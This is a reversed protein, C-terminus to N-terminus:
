HLSVAHTTNGSPADSIAFHLQAWEQELRQGVQKLLPPIAEDPYSQFLALERRILEAQNPCGLCSFSTM